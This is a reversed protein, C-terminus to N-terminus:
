LAAVLEATHKGIAPLITLNASIQEGQTFVVCTFRKGDALEVHVADHRRYSARPDGTWGTWGAKSWLKAGEPLNAGMYNVVQSLPRKVFGPDRPRYLFDAMIRSREPSIMAGDMIRSFVSASADATLRNHNNGGVEVFVKERGYRDDDMLKQCVNIGDFEPLALQKFYANIGNRAAMWRRMEEEGLETDGTTGTLTDIVYNTANNSSWKIMDHMARELEPTAQVKGADLAAQTAVLYFVKIVSCPYFLADGNYSYGTPLTGGEGYAKEERRLHVLLTFAFKDEALGRSAFGDLATRVIEEGVAEIQKSKQFFM